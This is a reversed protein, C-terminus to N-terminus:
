APIASDRAAFLESTAGVPFREKLSGCVTARDGNLNRLAVDPWARRMRDAIEDPLVQPSSWGDTPDLQFHLTMWGPLNAALLPGYFTDPDGPVYHYFPRSDEVGLAPLMRGDLRWLAVRLNNGLEARAAAERQGQEAELAAYTVWGLGAFVLAAVLFFVIPGGVPGLLRRSM